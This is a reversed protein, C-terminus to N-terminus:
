PPGRGATDDTRRGLDADLAAAGYPATRASHRIHFTKARVPNSRYDPPQAEASRTNVLSCHSTHWGM